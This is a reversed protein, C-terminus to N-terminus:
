LTVDAAYKVKEEYNVVSEEAEKAAKFYVAAKQKLMQDTDQLNNIM